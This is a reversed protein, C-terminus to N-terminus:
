LFLHINKQKSTKFQSIKTCKVMKLLTMNM